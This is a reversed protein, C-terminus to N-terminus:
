RVNRFFERVDAVFLDPQELAAFHGGRPMETWRTINYSRECWSRPCTIIERPFRAVATPINVFRASGFATGSSEWYLRASSTASSTIWYLMVNDLLVDRSVVGEPHGDCDMWAGFKEMIWSMQGVPSDTLAYGITQPRTAQLKQYGSEHEQYHALRLMDIRAADLMDAEGTPAPAVPMNLHIAICGGPDRALETTVVAGWDGGQAGYRKYGLRGMLTRWARATAEIGWGPRDPQGSYGFGPLSPCIVHFADEDRGGFSAPDTLPGIVRQFEAVSGPWGHTILLPFANQIRSRQHIFHIELGDIVTTFQPFDNLATERARWDYKYRWYSALERTYDLPIGQSWGDVTEKQPWRTHALREQLDALVADPVSIHFPKVTATAYEPTM